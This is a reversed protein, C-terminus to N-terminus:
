PQINGMLSKVPNGYVSIDTAATFAGDIIGSLVSATYSNRDIYGEQVLPTIAYNGLTWTRGDIKPLGADHAKRAEEAAKGEPFFGGGVDLRGETVAQKAIQTLINGEIVLSQYKDWDQL